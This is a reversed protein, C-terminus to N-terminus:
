GDDGGVEGRCDGAAVETEAKRLDKRPPPPRGVRGCRFPMLATREDDGLDGALLLLGM